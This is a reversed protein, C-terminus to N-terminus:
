KIILIRPLLTHLNDLRNKRKQKQQDHRNGPQNVPVAFIKRGTHFKQHLFEATRLCPVKRHSFLNASAILNSDQILLKVTHQFFQILQDFGTIHLLQFIFLCLQLVQLQLDIRMKQIVGQLRDARDRRHLLYKDNTIDTSFQSFDEPVTQSFVVSLHHRQLLFHLMNFVIHKNLLNTVSVPQLYKIINIHIRHM